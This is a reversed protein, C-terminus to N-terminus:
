YQGFSLKSRLLLDGLVTTQHYASHETLGLTEIVDLTSYKTEQSIVTM